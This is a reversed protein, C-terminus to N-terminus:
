NLVQSLEAIELRISEVSHTQGIAPTTNSRDTHTFLHLCALLALVVIPLQIDQFCSDTDKM